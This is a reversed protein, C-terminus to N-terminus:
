INLCKSWIVPEAKNTETVSPVLSFTAYHRVIINLRAQNLTEMVVCTVASYNAYLHLSTFFIYLTWIV